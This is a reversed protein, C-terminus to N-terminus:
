RALDQFPSEGCGFPGAAQETVTRLARRLNVPDLLTGRSTPFVLGLDQWYEGLLAM